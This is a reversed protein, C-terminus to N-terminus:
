QSKLIADSSQIEISTGTKLTQYHELVLLCVNGFFFLFFFKFANLFDLPMIFLERLKETDSSITLRGADTVIPLRM